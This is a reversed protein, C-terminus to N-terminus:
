ENKIRECLKRIHNNKCTEEIEKLVEENYKTGEVLMILCM